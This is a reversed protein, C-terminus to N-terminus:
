ELLKKIIETYPNDDNGYIENGVELMRKLFEDNKAKEEKIKKDHPYVLGFYVINSFWQINDHIEEELQEEPIPIVSLGRKSIFEAAYLDTYYQVFFDHTYFLNSGNFRDYGILQTRKSLEKKIENYFFRYRKPLTASFTGCDITVLEETCDATYDM